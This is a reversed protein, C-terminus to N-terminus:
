PNNVTQEAEFGFTATTALGSVADPPKTAAVRRPLAGTGDGRGM